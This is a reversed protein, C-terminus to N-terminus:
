CDFSFQKTLPCKFKGPVTTTTVQCANKNLQGKRRVYGNACLNRLNVKYAKLADALEKSKKRANEYNDFCLKYLWIGVETVQLKISPFKPDDIGSVSFFPRTSGWGAVNCPDGARTAEINPKSADIPKIDKYNLVRVYNASEKAFNFPM